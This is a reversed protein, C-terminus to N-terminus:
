LIRIGQTQTKVASVTATSTVIEVVWLSRHIQNYACVDSFSIWNTSPTPLLFIVKFEPPYFSANM